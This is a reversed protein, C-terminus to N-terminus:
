ATRRLELLRSRTAPGADRGRTIRYGVGATKTGKNTVTRRAQAVPAAGAFGTGAPM